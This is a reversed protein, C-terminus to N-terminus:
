FPLMRDAGYYYLDVPTQILAAEIGNESLRSALEKQRSELESVPVRWDEGEPGVLTPLEGEM